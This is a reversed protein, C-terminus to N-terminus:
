VQSVKGINETAVQIVDGINASLVQSVEHGYGPPPPTYYVVIEFGDEYLQQAVFGHWQIAVGFNSNNVLTKMAAASLGWLDSSGGHTQLSCSACNATIGLNINTKATGQGTTANTLQIDYDQSPGGSGYGCHHRIRVGNIIDGAVFTRFGYVYVYYWGSSSNGSRCVDNNYIRGDGSGVGSHTTASTKTESAM